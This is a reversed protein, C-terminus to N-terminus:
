SNSGLRGEIQGNKPCIEIIQSVQYKEDLVQQSMRYKCAIWEPSLFLKLYSVCVVCITFQQQSFNVLWEILTLEFELPPRLCLLSLFRGKGTKVKCM